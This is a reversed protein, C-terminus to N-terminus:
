SHHSRCLAPVQRPVDKHACQDLVSESQRHGNVVRLDAFVVQRDLLSVRAHGVDVRAGVAAEGAHIAMSRAVVGLMYQAALIAVVLVLLRPMVFQWHLWRRM